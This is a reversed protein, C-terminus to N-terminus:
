NDDDGKRGWHRNEDNKGKEANADNEYKMDNPYKMDNTERQEDPPPSSYHSHPSLVHGAWLSLIFSIAVEEIAQRLADARLEGEFSWSLVRTPAITAGPITGRGREHGDEPGRDAAQPQRLTRPAM